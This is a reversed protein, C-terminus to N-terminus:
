RSRRRRRRRDGAAPLRRGVDDDDGDPLAAAAAAVVGGACRARQRDRLVGAHLRLGARRPRLPRPRHVAAAGRDPGAGRARVHQRVAADVAAVATRLVFAFGKACIPLLHPKEHEVARVIHDGESGPPDGGAPGPRHRVARGGHRRRAVPVDRRGRHRRRRPRDGAALVPRVVGEVGNAALLQEAPLIRPLYASYAPFFFAARSVSCPRQRRGHALDAALGSHRTRRGRRRRRREVTEVAIIIARQNVRDAAIGGVLVFAVCARAWAPRRGAVAVGPRQRTRHGAPGDRRDVHGRRLDLDVDGHDAPPVRPVPITRARALRRRSDGAAAIM